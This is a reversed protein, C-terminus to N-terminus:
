SQKLIQLKEEAQNLMVQAKQFLRVGEEYKQMAEELSINGQHLKQNINQLNRLIDDFSDQSQNQNMQNQNMQNQNMQNPNSM